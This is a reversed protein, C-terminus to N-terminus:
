FNEVRETYYVEHFKDRGVNLWLMDLTEQEHQVDFNEVQCYCLIATELFQQM